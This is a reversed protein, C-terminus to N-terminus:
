EVTAGAEGNEAGRLHRHLKGGLLTHREEREAGIPDLASRHFEEHLSASPLIQLERGIGGIQLRDAADHGCDVAQRERDLQCGRADAGQREVVDLDQKGIAKPEQSM